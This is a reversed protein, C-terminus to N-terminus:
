KKGIGGRRRNEYRRADSCRLGEESSHPCVGAGSRNTVSARKKEGREGGWEVRKGSARRVPNLGRFRQALKEKNWEGEGEGRTGGLQERGGM